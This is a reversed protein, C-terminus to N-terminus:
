SKASILSFHKEMNINRGCMLAVSPGNPKFKKNLLAAIAVAGAGEVIQSEHWYAYHIGDAIEKESVLVIEDVLQKTLEFTYKNDLGIGGTLADALSEEEKVFIPKGAKQSEYMAAGRDMSVGIVKLNRNLSKLARSVGCILGGGSLPVFAFNLKPIQQHIELGLTGQGAIVDINDFPSVYTMGEEISLRDAELQAEDQNTGILRVEAGLAKIGEIKNNPVLKSMCIICRIKMLNAAFALGRGHNGTSLAVVGAKKQAPSLNSIANIAGRIKFSGTIQQNELKLYIHEGVAESLAKSHVAPTTIIHKSVIKEARVIDEFLLM